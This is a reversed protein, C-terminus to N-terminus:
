WNTFLYSLYLCISIFVQTYQLIISHFFLFHFILEPILIEPPFFQNQLTFQIFLIFYHCQVSAQATDTKLYPAPIRLYFLFLSCSIYLFVLFNIIIFLSNCGLLSTACNHTEHFFPRLPSIPHLFLTFLSSFPSPHYTLFCDLVM